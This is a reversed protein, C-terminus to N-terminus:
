PEAVRLTDICAGFLVRVGCVERGRLGDGDKIVSIGLADEHGGIVMVVESGLM